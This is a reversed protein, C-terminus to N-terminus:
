YFVLQSIGGGGGGLMLTQLNNGGSCEDTLELAFIILKGGFMNGFM